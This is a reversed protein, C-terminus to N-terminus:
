WVIDKILPFPTQRDQNRDLINNISLSSGKNEVSHPGVVQEREQYQHRHCGQNGSPIELFGPANVQPAKGYRHQIGHHLDRLNRGVQSQNRLPAFRVGICEKFFCHIILLRGKVNASM